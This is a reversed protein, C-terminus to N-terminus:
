CRLQDTDNKNVLRTVLKLILWVDMKFTNITTEVKEFRRGCNVTLEEGNIKIILSKVRSRLASQPQAHDSHVM